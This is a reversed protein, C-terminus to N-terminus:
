AKFDYNIIFTEINTDSIHNGVLKNNFYINFYRGNPSTSIIKVGGNQALYMLRTFSLAMADSAIKCNM